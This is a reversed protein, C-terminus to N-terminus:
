GSASEILTCFEALTTKRKPARKWRALNRSLSDRFRELEQLKSETEALTGEAIALVSRCTESGCGHLSLIRQVEDLSFGLAQAKRIFRVRRLTAEAYVRYGSATRSPKLLLGIREYFRITDPKVGALKALRGILLPKETM